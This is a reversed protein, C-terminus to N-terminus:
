LGQQIHLKNLLICIHHVLCHCYRAVMIECAERREPAVRRELAEKGCILFVGSHPAPENLRKLAVFLEIAGNPAGTTSHKVLAGNNYVDITLM